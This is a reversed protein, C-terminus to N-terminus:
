QMKLHQMLECTQLINPPFFLAKVQNKGKSVEVQSSLAHSKVKSSAGMFFHLSPGIFQTVHRTYVIM